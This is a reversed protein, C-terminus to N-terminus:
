SVLTCLSEFYESKLQINHRFYREIIKSFTLNINHKIPNIRSLIEVSRSKIKILRTIKLKKKKRKCFFLTCNLIM